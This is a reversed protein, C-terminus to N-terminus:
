KPNNDKDFYHRNDMDDVYRWNGNDYSWVGMAKVGKTLEEGNRFLHEFYKMDTYSWDGNNFIHYNKYEIENKNLWKELKERTEFTKPYQLNKM